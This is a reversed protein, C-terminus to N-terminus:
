KQSVVACALVIHTTLPYSSASATRSPLSAFVYFVCFSFLFVIPFLLRSTCRDSPYYADSSTRPRLFTASYMGLRETCCYLVISSTVPTTSFHQDEFLNAGDCGSISIPSCLFLWRLAGVDNHSGTKLPMGSTESKETDVPTCSYLFLPFCFSKYFVFHIM